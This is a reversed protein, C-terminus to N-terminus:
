APSTSVDSMNAIEGWKTFIFYALGFELFSELDLSAYETMVRDGPDKGRIVPFPTHPSGRRAV